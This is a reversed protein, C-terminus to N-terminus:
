PRGARGKSPSPGVQTISCEIQSRARRAAYYGSWRAREADAAAFEDRLAADRVEYKAVLDRLLKVAVDAAAGQQETSTAREHVMAAIQALINRAAELSPRQQLSQALADSQTDVATQEQGADARELTVEVARREEVNLLNKANATEAFAKASVARLYEALAELRSESAQSVENVAAMARPDCPLMRAMRDNMDKALAEWELGRKQAAQQLASLDAGDQARVAACYFM